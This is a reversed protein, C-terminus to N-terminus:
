GPYQFSLRSSQRSCRRAYQLQVYRVTALPQMARDALGVSAPCCAGLLLAIVSPSQVAVFMAIVYAAASLAERPPMFHFAAAVFASARRAAHRLLRPARTM